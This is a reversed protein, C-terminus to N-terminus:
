LSNNIYALRKIDCSFTGNIWISKLEVFFAFVTFSVAGLPFVIDVFLIFKFLFLFEVVFTVLSSFVLFVAFVEVLIIVVLCTSSTKSM